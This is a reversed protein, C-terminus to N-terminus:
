MQQDAALRDLENRALIVRTFKSEMISLKESMTHLWKRLELVAMPEDDDKTANEANEAFSRRNLELHEM